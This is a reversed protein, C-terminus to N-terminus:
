IFRPYTKTEDIGLVKGDRHAVIYGIKHLETVKFDFSRVFDACATEYRASEQLDLPTIGDVSLIPEKQKGSRTQHRWHSAVCIYAHSVVLDIIDAKEVLSHVLGPITRPDQGKPVSDFGVQIMDDRALLGSEEAMKINIVSHLLTENLRHGAYPAVRLAMTAVYADQTDVAKCLEFRVQSGPRLTNSLRLSPVMAVQREGEEDTRAQQGDTKQFKRPGLSQQGEIQVSFGKCRLVDEM